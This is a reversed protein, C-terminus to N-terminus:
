WRWREPALRLRPSRCGSGSHRSWSPQPWGAQALVLWRSFLDAQFPNLWGFVVVLVWGAGSCIWLWTAGKPPADGADDEVGPGPGAPDVGRERRRGRSRRRQDLDARDDVPLPPGLLNWFGWVLAAVLLVLALFGGTAWVELFLNHPDVIEESAEPLKHRAYPGPFNGPGVGLWFTPEALAGALSPAGNGIVRWAGQWYELRTRMSKTTETLVLSDLRRMALGAVVLGTVVVAGALGTAVLMRPSALRRGRVALLCLGAGVGVWASRSKGLLLCSLVVLVLPLAMGLATGRSGPADARVLNYLGVALLIVFPGAIYGALSNALAFTSWPETSGLIRNRLMLAGRTGPMINLKMEADRHPNRKYQAQLLPLEVRNQYLGYASVAVATAVLAGALVSSEGRTRPLNRLLLYVFGLAAWEWALNIAPRRDLSHTASLAVFAMTAVVFGDVASWRFRLRGGLLPVALAIGVTVLLLLVWVLGDAAGERLNPESPFFARATILAATLGLALRRLREALYSM